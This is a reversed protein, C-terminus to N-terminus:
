KIYGFSQPACKFGYDTIQKLNKYRKINKLKYAYAISKGQFYEFFFVADIGSYNKTIGWINTPTDSLIESVEAEGVVACVPSSSYIIVKDVKRTPIQKRFEFLKNGALIEKVFKPKIPLLITTM